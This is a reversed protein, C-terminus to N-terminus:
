LEDGYVEWGNHKERAFLEIKNGRTYLDDIMERFAEPKQSHKKSKQISIVSDYLKPNDPKCSGRTAVLLLEHRVSNYHGFNHGVKDWVFSTKYKFGWSNIVPFCDELLPSTVWMFLIANDELINKIPMDCLEEISMVKYHGEAYGYNEVTNSYSWPPDAYVIRYKGEPLPPTERASQQARISKNYERNVNSEGKDIKEIIEKDCNEVIWDEKQATDHSVGTAKALIKKTDWKDSDSLRSQRGDVMRKLGEKVLKPKLAKRIAVREEIGFGKRMHNEDYEGRVIDSLNIRRAPIETLGLSKFAEIRRQGCVLVNDETVTIAQLLGIEDISNALSGIDGMDRRFRDEIKIDSIKIKM